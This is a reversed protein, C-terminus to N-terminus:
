YRNEKKKRRKARWFLCLTTIIIIAAVGTFIIAVAGLVGWVFDGSESSTELRPCEVSNLSEIVLSCGKEITLYLGDVALGDNM